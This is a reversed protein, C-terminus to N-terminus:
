TLISTNAAVPPLNEGRNPLAVPTLGRLLRHSDDCMVQVNSRLPPRERAVVKLRHESSENRGEVTNHAVHHRDGVRSVVM